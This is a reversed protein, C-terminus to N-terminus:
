DALKEWFTTIKDKIPKLSNIDVIRVSDIKSTPIEETYIFELPSFIHKTNPESYDELTKWDTNKIKSSTEPMDLYRWKLLASSKDNDVPIKLLAVKKSPGLSYWDLIRNLATKPFTNKVNNMEFLFVGDGFIPNSKHIIGDNKISLYNEYSTMHYLYKPPIPYLRRERDAWTSGLYYSKEEPLFNKPKPNAESFIPSTEPPTIIPETTKPPIIIPEIPKTPTAAVSTATATPAPSATTPTPAITTSLPASPSTPATPTSSNRPVPPNSGAGGLLTKIKTGLFGKRGMFFLGAVAILSAASCYIINKTKDNELLPIKKVTNKDNNSTFSTQNNNKSIYNSGGAIKTIKM